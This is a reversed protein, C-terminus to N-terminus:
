TPKRPAANRCSFECGRAAVEAISNIPSNAPVLYTTQLDIVAPGYEMVLARDATIGLFTVDITGKRFAEMIAGPNEFRILEGPVGIRRALEEALDPIVGKLRGSGLDPVAFYGVMLVGVRLTGTPALQQKIDSPQANAPPSAGSAIAAITLV